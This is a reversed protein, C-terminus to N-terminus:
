ELLKDTFEDLLEPNYFEREQMLAVRIKSDSLIEELLSSCDAHLAKHGAKVTTCYEDFLEKVQFEMLSSVMDCCFRAIVAYRPDKRASPRDMKSLSKGYDFAENVLADLFTGKALNSIKDKKQESAGIIDERLRCSLLAVKLGGVRHQMRQDGKLHIFQKVACKLISLILGAFSGRRTTCFIELNGARYLLRPMSLEVTPQLILDDQIRGGRGFAARNLSIPRGDYKKPIALIPNMLINKIANDLELRTALKEAGKFELASLQRWAFYLINYDVITSSLFRDLSLEPLGVGDIDIPGDEALQRNAELLKIIARDSEQAKKDLSVTCETGVHKILMDTFDSVHEEIFAKFAKWDNILEYLKPYSKIAECYDSTAYAVDDAYDMIEAEPTRLRCVTYPKATPPATNQESPEATQDQAELLGDLGKHSHDSYRYIWDFTIKDNGNFKTSAGVSGLGDTPFDYVSYKGLAKPMVLKAESRTWPYKLCSAWTRRTLQLFGLDNRSELVALIRFTQANGEFGGYDEMIHALLEECVHGFPPHGLDHALATAEVIYPDIGGYYRCLDEQRASINKAIRVAYRAVEFTHTLRSHYHQISFKKSGSSQASLEVQTVHQLRNFFPSAAIKDRDKEFLTRSDGQGAFGQEIEYRSNGHVLDLDKDEALRRLVHDQLRESGLIPDLHPQEGFISPSVYFADQSM